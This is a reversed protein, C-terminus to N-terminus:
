AWRKSKVNQTHVHAGVEIRKSARGIARGYKIVDAGEDVASVAIKHGLPIDEIASVEPQEEGALTVVRVREGKSVDNVVVAVADGPEHLLAGHAM